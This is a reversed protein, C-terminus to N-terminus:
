HGTELRRLTNGLQRDPLHGPRAAAPTRPGSQERVKPLVGNARSVGPKVSSDLFSPSPETWSRVGPRAAAFIGTVRPRPVLLHSGNPRAINQLRNSRGPGIPHIARRPDVLRQQPAADVM